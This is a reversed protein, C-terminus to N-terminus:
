SSEFDWALYKGYRPTVLAPELSPRHAYHHTRYMVWAAVAEDDMIEQMEVYMDHRRDEDLEVLAEEHLRDFEENSWSMYNWEGIQESTFWVTAWSPDASNSFSFYFLQLNELNERMEARERLNINVTIGIDALNQQVIEAIIRAGPEEVISMELTLDSVGAEDLLAQAAEVDRDYRPADQWHGVPMDPAVLAHARTTHGEFAANIMSDVDLAQRVARRVNVDSLVEDTVNFGVWGYDFTTQKTVEFEDDNEFRDVSAHSILGFDVEGTEVAIDASSDDAIPQLRIEEWQPEDAVEDLSAEGWDEFRQLLILQGRDWEVFEYPGSGIPQTAIDEGREEWAARSIVLGAHAPLTTRMLPAFPESLHIVGSYDGTVEVQELTAWDDRYTSEIPPDTLGAIREFSFKVDEATVEGFDGHFPMGEKLKFEHTLGDESSEFEEALQNVVDTSGPRYALLGEAVCLMVADDVTAPMFAPDLNEMDQVLRISLTGATADGGEDPQGTGQPDDDGAVDCATLLSGGLGAAAGLMGARRLFDRRTLPPTAAQPTGAPRYLRPAPM